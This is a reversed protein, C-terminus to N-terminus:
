CKVKFNSSRFVEYLLLSGAVAVNLSDMGPVMPIRVLQQCLAQENMTLGSRENGLMLISGTKFGAKDYDVPGHPSAGVVKLKHNRIWLQLEKFNTRIIRQKFLAGMTARVVGLDFPDVKDGILILFSVAACLPSLDSRWMLEQLICVELIM